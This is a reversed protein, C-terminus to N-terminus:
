TKARSSGRAKKAAPEPQSTPQPATQRRQAEEPRRAYFYARATAAEQLEPDSIADLTEAIELSIPRLSPAQGLNPALLRWPEVKFHAAIAEVSSLQLDPNDTDLGIARRWTSVGLGLKKGMAGQALWLDPRQEKLVALNKALVKILSGKGM